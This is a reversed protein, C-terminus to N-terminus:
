EFRVEVKDGANLSFNDTLGGTAIYIEQGCPLDNDKIISLSKAIITDISFRLNDFSGNIVKIGNICVGISESFDGDYDQIIVLDDASCNDAVCLFAYGDPNDVESLPCEIGMHQSLIQYGSTLGSNFRVRVVLELEATPYNKEITSYHIHDVEIGGLIIGDIGFFRASTFNSAGVKYSGVLKNKLIKKQIQYAVNLNASKM